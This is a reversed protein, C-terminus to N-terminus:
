IMERAQSLERAAALMLFERRYRCAFVIGEAQQPAAMPKPEAIIEGAPRPLSSACKTLREGAFGFRLAGSDNRDESRAGVEASM